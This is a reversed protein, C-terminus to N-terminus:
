ELLAGIKYDAKADQLFNVLEGMHTGGNGAEKEHKAIKLATKENEDKYNVKAGNEVLSKVIELHGNKAAIMLPSNETSTSKKNINPDAKAELLMEVIKVCGHEVATMLATDGDNDRHNVDINKAALLKEVITPYGREAAEILPSRNKTIRCINPDANADLLIAVVEDKEKWCAWFLATWGDYDKYDIEANKELLQSIVKVHGNKAAITLPTCQQEKTCINPDANSDLLMKVIETKGEECATYLATQGEDDRHNIDIKVNELLDQIMQVDGDKSASFLGQILLNDAM